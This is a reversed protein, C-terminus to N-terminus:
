APVTLHPSASMEPSSREWTKSRTEKEGLVELAPGYSGRHVDADAAGAVGGRGAVQLCGDVVGSGSGDGGFEGVPQVAHEAAHEASGDFEGAAFPLFHAQGAGM